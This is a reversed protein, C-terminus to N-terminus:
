EWEGAMVPTYSATSAAMTRVRPSVTQNRRDCMVCVSCWFGVLIGNRQEGWKTGWDPGSWLIIWCNLELAIISAGCFRIKERFQAQSLKM